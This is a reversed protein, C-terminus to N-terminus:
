LSYRSSYKSVGKSFNSPVPQLVRTEDRDRCIVGATKDDRCDSKGWDKHACIELSYEDGHCVVDDLWFFGSGRGWWDRFPLCFKIIEPFTM